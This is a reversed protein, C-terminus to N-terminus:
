DTADREVHLAKACRMAANFQEWERTPDASEGSRVAEAMEDAVDHSRRLWRLEGAWDEVCPCLRGKDHLRQLREAETSM